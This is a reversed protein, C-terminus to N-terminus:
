FSDFYGVFLYCRLLLSDVVPVVSTDPFLPHLNEGLSRLILSSCLSMVRFSIIFLTPQLSLFLSAEHSSFYVLIVFFLCFMFSSFSDISNSRLTHEQQQVLFSLTFSSPPLSVFGSSDTHTQSSSLRVLFEGEFYLNRLLDEERTLNERQLLQYRLGDSCTSCSFFFM